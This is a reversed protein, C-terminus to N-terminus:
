LGKSQKLVLRARKKQEPTSNSVKLMVEAVMRDVTRKVAPSAKDYGSKPQNEM